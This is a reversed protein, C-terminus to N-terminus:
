EPLPHQATGVGSPIGGCKRGALAFRALTGIGFPRGYCASRLGTAHFRVPFSSSRHGTGFMPAAGPACRPQMM